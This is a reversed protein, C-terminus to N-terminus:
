RVIKDEFFKVKILNVKILVVFNEIKSIDFIREIFDLNNELKLLFDKVESLFDWNILYYIM